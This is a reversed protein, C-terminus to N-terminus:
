VRTVTYGMEELLAVLGHEGAMHLAGVVVFFTASGSGNLFGNIKDAMLINRDLLMAKYYEEDKKMDVAMQTLQDMDGNIWMESLHTAPETETVFNYISGMLFEEQLGASFNDFMTFQSEYSELELIPMKAKLANDMFYQDIGLTPQYDSDERNWSDLIMSAFWPKYKDMANAPLELETLLEGLIRYADPSLHNQITTGDKYTGLNDLYQPLEPKEVTSDVEVALYGADAFADEIEDRLPYMEESAVHISGLMYVVNGNKEVKWLFGQSKMITEISIIRETENWEIAYGTAEVIFRLPVYTTQGVMQPAVTLKQPKNNVFATDHDVQLSIVAENKPNTSTATVVKSEKNWGISFSLKELLMRVPVLTTDNVVIPSRDGFQVQKGDVWISLPNPNSAAQAGTAFSIAMVLSLFLVLLKKM